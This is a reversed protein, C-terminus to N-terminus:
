DETDKRRAHFFSERHRAPLIPLTRELTQIASPSHQAIDHIRNETPPRYGPQRGQPRITLFCAVPLHL